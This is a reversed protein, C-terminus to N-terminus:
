ANWVPTHDYPLASKGSSSSPVMGSAMILPDIGASVTDLVAEAAKLQAQLWQQAM